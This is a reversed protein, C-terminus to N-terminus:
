DVLQINADRMLMQALGLFPKEFQYNSKVSIDYYLANIERHLNIDNPMVKRDAIDFKNGVLIIPIDGCINRVKAIWDRCNNYSIRSTLDFMVIACDAQVYHTGWVYFRIPGSTTNFVLPNISVGFTADYVQVFEGTLHRRILSTKGVGADGVLVCKFTPINTM